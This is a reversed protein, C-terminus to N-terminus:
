RAAHLPDEWGHEHGHESAVDVPAQGRGMVFWIGHVPVDGQNSLRHPVVSDISVSDGPGLVYDDFGITVHLTGSLVYGWEHGSHRQFADAPSSAGGVEYIVYLFEVGPESATTLQEWTVGSALRIHRRADGRQVPGTPSAPPRAAPAVDGARAVSPRPRGGFLLDDLSVGLEAAIAYLTSVSPTARGTEVQSILSPSVGLRAALDRLSLHHARREIRLREGMERYGPESRIRKDPGTAPSPAGDPSEDPLTSVAESPLRRGGSPNTM